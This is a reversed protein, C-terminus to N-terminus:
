STQEVVATIKVERATNGSTYVTQAKGDSDTNDNGPSVSGVSDDDSFYVLRGSIPQFFQDKVIATITSTSVTNAAIVAPYAALSISTVFSDLSSLLYSYHGWTTGTGDPVDQLRYMNQSDMCMDYVTIVTSEDSKINEMVMSGYYPLKNGSANVNVFLANTGKIYVLTDVNGYETFSNVNYFTCAKVSKYAGGAYRTIYDGTYADFKYLAGTASSTGDYNNFMWLYTYFNVKDGEAYNYQLTGSTITVGGSVTGTIVVDEEEGNSNPGIHLTLKDGSTTTFNMLASDDWYDDLYLTNSGSVVGSSLATHYHAVSFAQSDYNHNPDSDLYDFQQQLKCIYNDIKWRKISVRDSKNQLSWFYVGDFEASKVVDTSNNGMLTDFPFSFSTNGDDTKQLLSDQDHDFTYFYGQDVTFNDQQGKILKINETAM